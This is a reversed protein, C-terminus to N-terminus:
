DTIDQWLSQGHPLSAIINQLTQIHDLNGSYLANVQRKSLNLLRDKVNEVNFKEHLEATPIRDILRTGNIFRLAKNQLIQLRNLHSKKSRFSPLPAYEYTPRIISKFLILNVNTPASRFRQISKFATNAKSVLSNIHHNGNLRQDTRYGLINTSSKTPIPM